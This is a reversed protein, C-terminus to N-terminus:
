FHRANLIENFFQEICTLTKTAVLKFRLISVTHTAQRPRSNSTQRSASWGRISEKNSYTNGGCNRRCLLVRVRSHRISRISNLELHNLGSWSSIRLVVDDRCLLTLKSFCVHLFLLRHPLALPIIAYCELSRSRQFDSRWVILFVCTRTEQPVDTSSKRDGYCDWERLFVDATM